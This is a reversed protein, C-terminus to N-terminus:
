WVQIGVNIKAAIALIYFQGLLGCLFSYTPTKRGHTNPAWCSPGQVWLDGPFGPLNLM